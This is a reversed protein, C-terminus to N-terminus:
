KKGDKKEEVKKGFTKRKNPKEEVEFEKNELVKLRDDLSSLKEYLVVEKANIKVLDLLQKIAMWYCNGVEERAYDSFEQFTAEPCGSITFSRQTMKDIREKLEDDLIEKNM